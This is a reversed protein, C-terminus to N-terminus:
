HPKNGNLGSPTPRVKSCVKEFVALEEDTLESVDVAVSEIEIAGGDKGTIETSRTYGRNKLKTSAYFNIMQVNGAEILKWIRDEVYDGKVECIQSVASMLRPTQDVWRRVSERSCPRKWKEVLFRAAGSYLGGSAKLAEMIQEDTFRRKGPGHLFPATTTAPPSYEGPVKQQIDLQGTAVNLGKRRGSGKRAAPKITKKKAM